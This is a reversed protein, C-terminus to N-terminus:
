LQRMLKEKEPLVPVDLGFVVDGTEKNSWQREEFEYYALCNIFSIRASNKDDNELVVSGECFQAFDRFFAVTGPYWYGTVKRDYFLDEIVSEFDDEEIQKKNFLNKKKVLDFLQNRFFEYEEVVDSGWDSLYHPKKMLWNKFCEMKHEPVSLQSDVYIIRNGM